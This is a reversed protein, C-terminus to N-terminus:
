ATLILKLHMIICLNIVFYALLVVCVKSLYSPRQFAFYHM